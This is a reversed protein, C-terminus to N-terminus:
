GFYCGHCNCSVVLLHDGEEVCRAKGQYLMLGVSELCAAERISSESQFFSNQMAVDEIRWGNM